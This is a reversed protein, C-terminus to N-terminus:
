IDVGIAEEVICEGISIAASVLLPNGGTCVCAVTTVGLSACLLPYKISPPTCDLVIGKCATFIVGAPTTCKSVKKATNYFGNM